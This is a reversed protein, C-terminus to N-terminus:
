RLRVDRQLEQQMVALEEIHRRNEDLWRRFIAEHAAAPQYPPLGGKLWQARDELNEYLTRSAGEEQAVDHLLSQYEMLASRREMLQQVPTPFAQQGKLIRRIPGDKLLQSM